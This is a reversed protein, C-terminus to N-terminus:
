EQIQLSKWKASIGNRPHTTRSIWCWIRKHVALRRINFSAFLDLNKKGWNNDHLSILYIFFKGFSVHLKLSGLSLMLNFFFLGSCFIIYWILLPFDVFELLFCLPVFLLFHSLNNVHSFHNQQDIDCTISQKCPMSAGQYCLRIKM